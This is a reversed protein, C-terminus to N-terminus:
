LMWALDLANKSKPSPKLDARDSPYAKLVRHTTQYEREFSQLFADKESMTRQMNTEKATMPIVRRHASRGSEVGPIRLRPAGSVSSRHRWCVEHPQSSPSTLRTSSPTDCTWASSRM